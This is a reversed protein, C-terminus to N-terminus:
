PTLTKPELKAAWLGSNFDTFLIHGKWPMANMVFPANPTYGEPDYSKFVAIERKQDALNGLLEGSVDVIRVGGDYYAQYLVDDEVIIDHSGYDELHYKAVERPNKPDTFDVIHTYGGSSQAIEGKPPKGDAGSLRYGTGEWVKGSRNMVEDGLFLYTKGTSKQYYPYIEHGSNIPFTAILKPSEITGGYKGNGVDVAIAGVGGQASYAIGDRVWLDHIRANPHRYESVYKPKYIDKVDIIVYKQGGSVAFLHDNTAFMNHVGGTLEQDFTSAIKPHAPNALDLIVVGNVRNSAGERSLVGYRGDPSITVDNITRADVRVSDTKVPNAMNTIDFIMAYGDAGWTGVIVYDRGDKGTWPWLDSTHANRITGRGQITIRRRVDRPAVDVVKRAVINGATALLTFRGPANAAFLGHDVIGPGGPAATTDDPTYTYSWTIPVDAVTQGNARKATAALKIVDGTRLSTEKNDITLSAVPNTAVTYSVSASKGEAEATITATGPKLGTVTGFRDVSAVEPNSSKWIVAANKRESGNDHLARARHALAVNTYLRGPEAEIRLSTVVPWEVTVPIRLTTTQMQGNAMGGFATAVLEYRGATLGKVTVPTARSVALAARPGSVRVQADTLVTGNSDYATVTIPTVDGAMITLAPPTVELKAVPVANAPVGRPRQGAQGAQGAAPAAPQQAALQFALGACLTLSAGARLALSSAATTVFRSTRTVNM